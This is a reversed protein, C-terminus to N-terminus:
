HRPNSFHSVWQVLAAQLQDQTFPKSIFDNMGATLCHQRENDGSLGTLAIIPTEQNLSSKRIKRTAEFGDMVPMQCDMLILDYTKRQALEIAQLGHDALDTLVHLNKLYRQCLLRNITNDDVLLVRVCPSDQASGASSFHLLAEFIQREAPWNLEHDPQGIFTREPLHRHHLQDTLLIQYEDPSSERYPLQWANLWQVVQDHWFFDQIQIAVPHRGYYDQLRKLLHQYSLLPLTCLLAQESQGSAALSLQGGLQQCLLRLLTLSTMAALSPADAIAPLHELEEESLSFGPGSLAIHLEDNYPYIHLLLNKKKRFLLGTSLLHRLLLELCDASMFLQDHLDCIYSITANDTPTRQLCQSAIQDLDNLHAKRSRQPDQLLALDSLLQQLYGSQANAATIDQQQLHQQLRQLHPAILAPIDPLSPASDAPTSTTPQNQQQLQRNLTTLASTRKNILDELKHSYEHISAETQRQRTQENQLITLLDGFQNMLIGLEDKRGSRLSQLNQSDLTDPNIATIQQVLQTLPHTVRRYFTIYIFISVLLSFGLAYLAQQWVVQRFEQMLTCRDIEVVLKGLPIDNYELSRIRIGSDAFLLLELSNRECREAKGGSALQTGSSDVVVASAIDPHLILGNILQQNLRQNYNFTALNFSPQTGSLLSNIESQQRAALQQMAYHITIIGIISALLLAVAATQLAMKPALRNEVKLSM